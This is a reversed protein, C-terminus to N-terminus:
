SKLRLTTGTIEVELKTLGQTAPGQVLAGTGSFTSGHAACLFSSTANMYEVTAGAHPCVSSVALFNAPANGAAKRIVIFGSKAVFDNVAKLESELNITFGTSPTTPKNVAGPAGNEDKSCANTLCALCAVSFSGTLTTLFENRKM